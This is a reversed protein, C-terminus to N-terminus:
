RGAGQMDLGAKELGDLLESVLKPANYFWRDVDTSVYTSEFNPRLARIEQVAAEAAEIDGLKAYVAARVMPDAYYEPMNVRLAIELASTYDAQLYENFFSTFFYWGPHDPQLLMARETLEIGRSWDGSYGFLIGLMALTHTDYPNLNIAREAAARFADLDKRFYQTLALSYHAFSSASDLEIARRAASLARAQSNPLENYGHMHEQIRIVALCAWANSNAPEVTIAHNLAQRAKLHMEPRSTQMYLSLQLIAEYPTMADAAKDRITQALTKAVVGTIDGLSGVVRDVISDQVSFIDEEGGLARDFRESWITTGDRSDVLRVNLRLSDGAARLEGELLYRAGLETGLNVADRERDMAGETSARSLVLLHSFMSLNSTIDAELGEAFSRLDANGGQVDIPLVAIWPEQNIGTAFVKEVETGSHPDNSLDILSLGLAGIGAVVAVIILEISSVRQTGKAGHFWSIVLTILLGLVLLLDIVRAWYVGIGWRSGLVDVFQMVMWAGALYAIAWQVIKRQRLRGIVTQIPM